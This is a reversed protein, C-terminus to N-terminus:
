RSEDGDLSEIRAGYHECNYSKLLRLIADREAIAESESSFYQTLLEGAPTGYIVVHTSDAQQDFQASM